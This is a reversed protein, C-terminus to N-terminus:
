FPSSTKGVPPADTRELRGFTEHGRVDELTSAPSPGRPVVTLHGNTEFVVAEVDAMSAMGADRIAARIEMEAIRHKRMARPLFQGRHFLLEPEGNLFRELRNARSAVFALTTQMLILLAFGGVVQAVTTSPSLIATALMSGIAVTVVFDYPNMQSLSRKGGMRIVIVMGVYCLVALVATRALQPWSDFFYRDIGM